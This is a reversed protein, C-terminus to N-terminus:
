NQNDIQPNYFNTLSVDRFWLRECKRSVDYTVISTELQRRQHSSSCEKSPEELQKFALTSKNSLGTIRDEKSFRFIKCVWPELDFSLVEFLFSTCTLTSPNARNQIFNRTILIRVSEFRKEGEISNDFTVKETM